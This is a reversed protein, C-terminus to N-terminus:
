LAAELGDLAGALTGDGGVEVDYSWSPSIDYARSLDAAHAKLREAAAAPINDGTVPSSTFADVLSLPADTVDVRFWAPLTRSAFSTVRGRPESTLFARVFAEAARVATAHDGALNSELRSMDVVAYRYVTSDGYAVDGIMAGGAGKDSEGYAGRLDDVASFFDYEPEFSGVGIAHAVNAAAEVGYEPNSAVMRGFLALDVAHDEKLVAKVAKANAKDALWEARDDAAVYDATLAGLRDLTNSGILILAGADDDGEKGGELGAKALKLVAKADEVDVGGRQAVEVAVRKTRLGVDPLDMGRMMDRCAKKWAQSSVRARLSGNLMITKPDGGDDRNICNPGLPQIAHIEVFETM